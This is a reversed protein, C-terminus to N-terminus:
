ATSLRAYREADVLDWDLYPVPEPDFEVELPDALSFGIRDIMAPAEGTASAVLESLQQQTM